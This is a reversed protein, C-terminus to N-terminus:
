IRITPIRLIRKVIHGTLDFVRESHDIIISDASIKIGDLKAIKREVTGTTECHGKLGLEKLWVNLRKSFERSKSYPSDLFIRTFSPPYRRLVRAILELANDTTKSIKFRKFIKGTDRIFGDDCQIITKGKIANELTIIVNYGDIVVPNGKLSRVSVCRKKRSQAVDQTFIARFLIHREESSLQYRNGVFSIASKRPYGRKLLFRLDVSAMHLLSLRDNSIIDQTKRTM